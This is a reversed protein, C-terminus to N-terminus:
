NSVPFGFEDLEPIEIGPDFGGTMSPEDPVLAPQLLESARVPSAPRRYHERLYRTIRALVTGGDEQPAMLFARADKRDVGTLEQIAANYFAGLRKANAGSVRTGSLWNYVTRRSVGLTRAIESWELQTHQQIRQLVDSFNRNEEDTVLRYGTQSEVLMSLTLPATKSLGTTTISTGSVSNSWQTFGAKLPEASSTASYLLMAGAM